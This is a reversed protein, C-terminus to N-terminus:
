LWLNRKLDSSQLKKCGLTKPSWFINLHRFNEPGLYCRRWSPQNWNQQTQIGRCIYAPSRSCFNLPFQLIKRVGFRVSKKQPIVRVGLRIIFEIKKNNNNNHVYVTLIICNGLVIYICIQIILYTSINNHM